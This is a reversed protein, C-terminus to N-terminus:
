KYLLNKISNSLSKNKGLKEIKKIFVFKEEKSLRAILKELVYNGYNNNLLSELKDQEIINNYIKKITEEKGFKICNEVINSSFKQMSLSLYNDVITDIIVNCYSLDTNTILSQVAYNAYPHQIFLLPGGKIIFNALNKHINKDKTHKVLQIIVCVGFVNLILKDIINIINYNLKEREEDKTSSIFKQLVHTGQADLALQIENNLIYNLITKKEEPLNILEIMNQVPHTGFINNALEVFRDKMIQLLEMRQSPM